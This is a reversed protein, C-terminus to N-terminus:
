PLVWRAVTNVIAYAAFCWGAVVVAVFLCGARDFMM